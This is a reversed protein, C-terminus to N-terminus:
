HPRPAKATSLGTLGLADLGSIEIRACIEEIVGIEEPSFVADAKAVAVGVRVLLESAEMDGACKAIVRLAERKGAEFDARMREVYAVHLTVALDADYIKLQEMSSILDGVAVGEEIVIRGDAMAVLASTAMAAELRQRDRLKPIEDAIRRALAEALISM